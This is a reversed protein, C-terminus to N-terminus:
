FPIIEPGGDSDLSLMMPFNNDLDHDLILALSVNSFDDFDIDLNTVGLSVDYASYLERVSNNVWDKPENFYLIPPM